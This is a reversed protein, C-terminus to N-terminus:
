WEELKKSVILEKEAKAIEIKKLKNELKISKLQELLIKFQIQKIKEDANEENIPKPSTLGECSTVSFSEPEVVNKKLTEQPTVPVIKTEIVNEKSTEPVKDNGYYEMDYGKLIEPLFKHDNM